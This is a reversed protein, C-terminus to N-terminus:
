ADGQRLPFSWPSMEEATRRLPDWGPLGAWIAEAAEQAARRLEDLDVGAVRRDAVRVVGDVIVMEVDDGIGCEVLSKIPDRVPGWRLTGGGTPDVVLVDARAGPALRGLDERGLARAGGLTAASFVEAATAAKLDHSMVKGFYSATRMQMILDRPYTDTGLAINIGLEQYRKWSDLARGRRAINVPCHSISVGHRGMLALDRAGSANLRPSDAPLNGHGITVDPGLLGVSELVEIPTMLHERVMDHFEVVSYAAHTTIPVRLEAAARRTARLLDLSCTEAERPVLLGRVRGGVSGDVRRIFACAAEFEKRGAAEDVVRRLRGRADGVWRGSDYGPGLYARIGLREVEALIAEQVRLQSGFELFTTTGNRLMEAVTFRAHLESARAAGPDDPRLYRPDGGVRTGERPVTIELFPQGHFDPRGVDTILRHSARHGSHVHTDILGPLVLKGRADIERDVTGEFRPGADLIRDDEFALVGDRYLVHTGGEYGVVWGGRILTRV